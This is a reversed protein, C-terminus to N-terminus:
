FKHVMCQERLANLVELALSHQRGLSVVVSFSVWAAHQLASSWTVGRPHLLASSWTSAFVSSSLESREKRTMDTQCASLIAKSKLLQLSCAALKQGEFKSNSLLDTNETQYTQNTSQNPCSQKKQHSVNIFLQGAYQHLDVHSESLLM